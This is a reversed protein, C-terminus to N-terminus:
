TGDKWSRAMFRGRKATLVRLAKLVNRNRAEDSKLNSLYRLIEKKRSPRLADWATKAQINSSLPLLFWSPIPHLPGPKYTDDFVVDVTVRDGVKTQSATRVDGHLYLYFSGDGKPMMNIRWPPTPQNNIQVFVPMPKKWGPKLSHAHTKSVLVYPNINHLEITATFHLTSMFFNYYIIFLQCAHNSIKIPNLATTNIFAHFSHLVFFAYPAVHINYGKPINTHPSASINLTKQIPMERTQRRKELTYRNRRPILKNQAMLLKPSVM